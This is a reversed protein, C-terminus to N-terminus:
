VPINMGSGPDPNKEIGSGPKTDMLNSIIFTDWKRIVLHTLQHHGRIAQLLLVQQFEPLVGVM